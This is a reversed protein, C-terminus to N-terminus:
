IGVGRNSFERGFADRAAPKGSNFIKKFAEDDKYKGLEEGSRREREQDRRLELGDTEAKRKRPEPPAHSQCTEVVEASSYPLTCHPCQDKALDLAARSVLCGCSWLFASRTVGDDLQHLTVPCLLGGSSSLLPQAIEKVDKLNKIHSFGPPLPDTSKKLLREILHEKSYLRGRKCVVIPITLPNQSIACLRMNLRRQEKSDLTEVSVKSILNPTYGMGGQSSKQITGFGKTRVMDARNPITGGDGGM